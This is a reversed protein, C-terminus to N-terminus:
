YYEVLLEAEILVSHFAVSQTSPSINCPHSRATRSRTFASVTPELRHLKLDCGEMQKSMLFRIIQCKGMPVSSEFSYVVSSADTETLYFTKSFQLGPSDNHAPTPRHNVNSKLCYGQSVVVVGRYCPWYLHAM